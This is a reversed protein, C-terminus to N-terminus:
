PAKVPGVGIWLACRFRLPDKDRYFFLKEFSAWTVRLGYPELAANISQITPTNQVAERFPKHLALMKPNHMNGASRKAEALQLPAIKELEAFVEKQFDSNDTFVSLYFHSLLQINNSQKLSQLAETITAHGSDKSYGICAFERMHDKAPVVKEEWGGLASTVGCLLLIAIFRHMM